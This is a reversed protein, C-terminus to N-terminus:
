TPWLERVADPLGAVGDAGLMAIELLSGPLLSLTARALAEAAAGEGHGTQQRRRILSALDNSMTVIAERLREALAPSRLAESWVMLAMAALDHDQHRRIVAELLEAMVEGLGRAGDADADALVTRLVEAVDELNQAAVAVIMDEKKPFYRYVAGASRGSELFVDQMSTRHFGNRLFCRRAADLIEARQEDKYQQSVRPM